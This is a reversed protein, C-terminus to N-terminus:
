EVAKKGIKILKDGDLGAGFKKVYREVAEGPSTSVQVKKMRSKKKDKVIVLEVNDFGAFDEPKNTTVQYYHDPYISKPNANEIRVFEPCVGNMSEFELTMKGNTTDLIHVGRLQGADGFNHHMPAGCLLINPALQQRMHIDGCVIYDFQSSYKKLDIGSKFTHGGGTSSGYPITHVFLLRRRKAPRPGVNDLFHVLKEKPLWPLLVLQHLAGFNSVMWDTAVTFGFEEMFQLSSTTCENDYWDHNGSIAFKREFKDLPLSALLQRTRNFVEIDVSRRTHFLDGAFVLASCRKKVFTRITHELVRLGDELRRKGNSGCFPAYKHLHIDSFVGIRM